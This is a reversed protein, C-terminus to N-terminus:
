ITIIIIYYLAKLIYGELDIAGFEEGWIGKVSGTKILLHNSFELGKDNNSVKHGNFTFNLHIGASIDTDRIYNNYIKHENGGYVAIGGARWIFEIINYCFVNNSEDKAGFTSDNWM